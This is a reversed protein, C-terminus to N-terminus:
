NQGKRQLAAKPQPREWPYRMLKQTAIKKRVPQPKSRPQSSTTSSVRQASGATQEEASAYGIGTFGIVAAALVNIKM